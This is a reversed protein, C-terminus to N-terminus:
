IRHTEYCSHNSPTSIIHLLTPFVTATFFDSKLLCDRQQLFHDSSNHSPINYLLQTGRPGPSLLVFCLSCCSPLFGVSPPRPFIKLAFHLSDSVPIRWGSESTSQTLQANGSWLATLLSLAPLSTLLPRGSGGALFSSVQCVPLVATHHQLSNHKRWWVETRLLAKRKFIQETQTLPLCPASTHSTSTSQKYAKATTHGDNSQTGKRKAYSKVIFLWTSHSLFSLQWTSSSVGRNNSFDSLQLGQM